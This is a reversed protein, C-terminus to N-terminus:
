YTELSNKILEYPTELSNRILKSDNELSSRILKQYTQLSKKFNYAEGGEDVFFLVFFM